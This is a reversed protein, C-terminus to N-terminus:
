MIQSFYCTNAPSLLLLGLLKTSSPLSNQAHSVSIDCMKFPFNIYLFSCEFMNYDMKITYLDCSNFM